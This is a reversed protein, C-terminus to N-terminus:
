AAGVIQEGEETTFLVQLLQRCGGWHNTLGLARDSYNESVKPIQLKRNYLDNVAFPILSPTDYVTKERSWTATPGLQPASEMHPQSKGRGRGAGATCLCCYPCQPCFCVPSSLLRGWLSFSFASYTGWALHSPLKQNVAGCTIPKRPVPKNLEPFYFSLGLGQVPEQFGTM